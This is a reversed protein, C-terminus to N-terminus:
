FDEDNIKVGLLSIFAIAQVPSIICGRVQDTTVNLTEFFSKSIDVGVLATDLFDAKDLECQTFKLRKKIQMNQFYASVLSSKEFQSTEIKSGSLNLYDAKSDIIITNKWHNNSFDTGMLQCKNFITRYFVSSSFDNNLFHCSEIQCDLWESDSFDTQQFECNKFKISDVHIRESSYLFLCDEYIEGPVVEDLSLRQKTIM